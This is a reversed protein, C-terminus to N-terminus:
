HKFIEIKTNGPRASIKAHGGIPFTIRPETHGFDAGYIVPLNSVKKNKKVVAQLDETEIQSEKEFRGVVLGRVGQFGPLQSLATLHSDFHHIDELSDEEVFLIADKLSPIFETGALYHFTRLNGGVIVGEADGSNLVQHGSNVILERQDQNKYWKDNSWKESPVVKFSDESILCRKFYELTYDFYLKEGFSSYHPGSYTVLGTKAYIANALATIDSYGCFIKPNKKILEYDLYPLLQNSNFGGITTIILRVSQDKFAEHIDELRSEIPSSVFQDTEEANKSYSMLLGLEEFRQSALLRNEPAILSLSRAPSVVM